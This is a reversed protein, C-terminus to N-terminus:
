GGAEVAPKRQVTLLDFHFGLDPHQARNQGVLVRTSLNTFIM